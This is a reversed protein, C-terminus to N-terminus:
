VEIDTMRGSVAIILSGASGPVLQKDAEHAWRSPYKSEAMISVLQRLPVEHDTLSSGPTEDLNPRRM